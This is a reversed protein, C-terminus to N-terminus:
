KYVPVYGLQGYEDVVVLCEGNISGCKSAATFSKSSSFALEGSEAASNAFTLFTTVTSNITNILQNFTGLNPPNEAMPNTGAPGTFLSIAASGSGIMLGGFALGIAIAVGGLFKRLYKKM